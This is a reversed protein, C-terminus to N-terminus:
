HGVSGAPKPYGRDPVSTGSLTRGDPLVVSVLQGGYSGFRLPFYSVQVKQGVKISDPKWGNEQLQTASSMELSWLSTKNNPALVVLKLWGHPNILSFEKVTGRLTGKAAESRNYTSFSHHASAPVSSVLSLLIASSLAARRFM